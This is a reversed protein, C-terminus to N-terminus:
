SEHFGMPDGDEFDVEVPAVPPAPAVAEAEAHPADPSPGPAAPGDTDMVSWADVQDEPVPEARPAFQPQGNGQM